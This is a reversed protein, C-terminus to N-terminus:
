EKNLYEVLIIKLDPTAKDIIKSIKQWDGGALGAGIKPIGIRYNKFDKNIKVFVKEVAKYDIPTSGVFHYQTYANIVILDEATNNAKDINNAEATNNTKDTGKIKATSYTGLKSEDGRITKKDAEYAEPFYRKINFAIGKGMTNFCNCGHIIADFNGQRALKILDGKITKIIM